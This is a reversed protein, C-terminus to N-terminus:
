LICLSSHLSLLEEDKVEAHFDFNRAAESSCSWFGLSSYKLLCLIPWWLSSCICNAALWSDSACRSSFPVHLVPFSVTRRRWEPDWDKSIAIRFNCFCECTWLTHINLTWLVQQILQPSSTDVPSTDLIYSLCNLIVSVHFSDWRRTAGLLIYIRTAKLICIIMVELNHWITFGTLIIGQQGRLGCSFSM